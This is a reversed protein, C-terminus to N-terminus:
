FAIDLEQAMQDFLLRQFETADQHQHQVLM